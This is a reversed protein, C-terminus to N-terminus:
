WCMLPLKSKSDSVKKIDIMTNIWKAYCKKTDPKGAKACTSWSVFDNQKSAKPGCYAKNAREFNFIGLNMVTKATGKLCNKSYEKVFKQVEILKSFM